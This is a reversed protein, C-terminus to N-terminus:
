RAGALRPVLRYAGCDGEVDRRNPIRYHEQSCQQLSPGLIVLEYEFGSPVCHEEDASSLRISEEFLCRVRVSVLGREVALRSIREELSAVPGTNVEPLMPVIVALCNADSWNERSRCWRLARVHGRHFGSFKYDEDELCHPALTPTTWWDRSVGEEAPDLVDDATVVFRMSSLMRKECDIEAEYLPSVVKLVPAGVSVSRVPGEALLGLAPLGLVILGVLLWILWPPLAPGGCLCPPVSPTGSSLDEATLIVGRNFLRYAPRASDGVLLPCLPDKLPKQRDLTFQLGGPPMRIEVYKRLTHELEPSLVARDNSM